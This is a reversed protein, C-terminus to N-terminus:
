SKERFYHEIPHRAGVPRGHNGIPRTWASSHGGASISTARRCSDVLWALGSFLALIVRLIASTRQMSWAAKHAIRSSIEM